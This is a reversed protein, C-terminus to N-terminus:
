YALSPLRSNGPHPLPQPHPVLLLVQRHHHTQPLRPAPACLNTSCAGTEANEYKCNVAIGSGSWGGSNAGDFSPKSRARCTPLWDTSVDCFIGVVCPPFWTFRALFSDTPVLSGRGASFFPPSGEGSGESSPIEVTGTLLM